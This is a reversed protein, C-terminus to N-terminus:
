GLRQIDRVTEDYTTTFLTKPEVLKPWKDKPCEDDIRAKAQLVCGCEGCLFGKRFECSTCIKLRERAIPSNRNTIWYYWGLFIRFLKKM